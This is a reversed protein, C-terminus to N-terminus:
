SMDTRMERYLAENAKAMVLTDFRQRVFEQGTHALTYALQPASVLRILANALAISDRPPILLGTKGDEILEPIGGVRSAIIPLGAALAEIVAVGLGEHLPVHVFLDAAALLGPIDSCFGIFQVEPAIGLTQAQAELVPRLPGEGSICYRMDYGQEKLIHAAALLLSHGKRAVLAGVAVVLPVHAAVGYQARVRERVLPKRTFHATPVGSPILRIREAPIGGTLLATQVGQSIAVIKDVSHLYLLRTLLGPRTPYDMRRTVLRTVHLGHLWPSLAHARATHFHAIDFQGARVLRRLQLGALFDFHNRIRLPVM